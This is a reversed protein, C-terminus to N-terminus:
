WRVRGHRTRFSFLMKYVLGWCVARREAPHIGTVAPCFQAEGVGTCLGSRSCSELQRPCLAVASFDKNRGASPPPVCLGTLLCIPNYQFFSIHTLVLFAFTLVLVLPEIDTRFLAVNSVATSSNCFLVCEELQM